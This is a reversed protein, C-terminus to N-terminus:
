HKLAELRKNIRDLRDELVEKLEELMKVEEEVSILPPFDMLPRYHGSYHFGRPGCWCENCM